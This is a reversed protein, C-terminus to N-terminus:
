PNIYSILALAGLAFLFLALLEPAFNRKVVYKPRRENYYIRFSRGVKNRPFFTSNLTGRMLNKGNHTFEVTYRHAKFGRSSTALELSIVTAQLIEGGIVVRYKSWIIFLGILIFVLAAAIHM